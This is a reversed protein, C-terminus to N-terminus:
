GASQGAFGPSEEGIVKRYKYACGDTSSVLIYELV